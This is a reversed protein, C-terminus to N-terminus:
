YKVKTKFFDRPSYSPHTVAYYLIFPICFIFYSLDGASNFFTEGFGKIITHYAFYLTILGFLLLGTYFSRDSAQRIFFAIAACAALYIYIIWSPLLYESQVIFPNIKLFLIPWILYFVVLPLLFSSILLLSYKLYVSFSKWRFNSLYYIIYGVIFVSRTSLLLGCLIANKALKHTFITKSLQDFAMLGLWVLVAYTMINSRTIIEWYMFPSSSILFLYPTAHRSHIHNRILCVGAIYGAASLLCLLNLLYFPYALLFYIPMPGPPNGLHSKAYYPYSGQHITDIFSSIVSWRDVNLTEQDIFVQAFLTSATILGIALYFILNKFKSIFKNILPLYLLAVQFIVFMVSLPIYFQTFRSSYKLLFLTNIVVFIAHAIIAKTIKSKAM